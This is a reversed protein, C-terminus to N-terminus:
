ITTEQLCPTNTQRQSLIGRLIILTFVLGTEEALPEEPFLFPGHRCCSALHNMIHLQGDTDTVQLSAPLGTNYAKFSVLFRCHIFTAIFCVLPRLPTSWSLNTVADNIIEVRKMHANRRGRPDKSRRGKERQPRLLCDPLMWRWAGWRSHHLRQRLRGVGGPPTEPETPLRCCIRTDQFHPLHPRDEGLHTFVTDSCGTGFPTQTDNSPRHQWMRNPCACYWCCYSYSDREDSKTQKGKRRQLARDVPPTRVPGPKSLNPTYIQQQPIELM